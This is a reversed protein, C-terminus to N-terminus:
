AMSRDLTERRWTLLESDQEEARDASSVGAFVLLGGDFALLLKQFIGGLIKVISEQGVIFKQVRGNSPGLGQHSHHSVGDSQARDSSAPLTSGM